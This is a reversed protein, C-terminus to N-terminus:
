KRREWKARWNVLEATAREFLQMVGNLEHVMPSDLMVIGSDQPQKKNMQLAVLQRIEDMNVAPGPCYPKGRCFDRHAKVHDVPISYEQCLEAVLEVTRAKQEDPYPYKDCFGQWPDGGIMCIGLSKFNMGEEQCHAGPAQPSRGRMVEYTYGVKEVGFHYGIDVWGRGKPPAAKHYMRVSDWDRVVNDAGASCHLIIWRPVNKNTM